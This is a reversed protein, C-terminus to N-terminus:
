RQGDLAAGRSLLADLVDQGIGAQTLVERTHEGLLPPPIFASRDSPTLPTATQLFSGGPTELTFFIDRHAFLPDDLTEQPRRVPECCCDVGDLLETWQQRTRSAFLEALEQQIQRGKDGSTLGDSARHEWGVAQCFAVWFKPELAGLAMHHGDSTEYVGYCPVGGDLMGQAPGAFPQGAAGVGLTPILFSLAGDTMSIDLHAGQGTRHRALLAALIASVAYLSGGAIDALQFGPTVLAGDKTGVTALVGARALYTIDHGAEKAMPGSQGFGSISCCVLSPFDRKLREPGLGLRELVGPRFSEVLVDAKSLLAELAGLAQPDKLDLAVSRKNRNISAFFAGMPGVFPQYYRAYDGGRPAEVKIVEAGMDGLLMTAFPGPLLRSLDVVRVGELAKGLGSSM